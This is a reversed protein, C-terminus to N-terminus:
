ATPNPRFTLARGGRARSLPIVKVFCGGTITFAVAGHDATSTCPTPANPRTLPNHETLIAFKVFQLGLQERYFLMGHATEIHRHRSFVPPSGKTVYCPTPFLHLFYGAILRRGEDIFHFGISLKLLDSQRSRVRPWSLTLGVDRRMPASQAPPQRQPLIGAM